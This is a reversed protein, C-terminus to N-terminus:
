VPFRAPRRATTHGVSPPRVPVVRSQVPFVEAQRETNGPRGGRGAPAGTSSMATWSNAVPDFRAGDAFYGRVAPIADTPDHLLGRAYFMEYKLRGDPRFRRYAPHTRGPNHLAGDVYWAVYVVVGDADRCKVRGTFDSPRQSEATIDITAVLRFSMSNPILDILDM